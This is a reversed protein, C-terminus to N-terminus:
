LFFFFFFIFRLVSVVNTTSRCPPNSSPKPDNEGDYDDGVLDRGFGIKRGDGFGAGLAPHACDVATDIVAVKIGQGFHGLQHLDSIRTEM